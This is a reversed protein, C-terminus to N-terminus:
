IFMNKIALYDVPVHQPQDCRLAFVDQRTQGDQTSAMRIGLCNKALENM